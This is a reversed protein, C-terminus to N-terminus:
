ISSSPFANTNPQILSGWFSVLAQGVAFGLFQQYDLNVSELRGFTDGASVMVKPPLIEAHSNSCLCNYCEANRRIQSTWEM